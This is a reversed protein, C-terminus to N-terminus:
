RSPSSTSAPPLAAADDAQHILAVIGGTKKQSGM